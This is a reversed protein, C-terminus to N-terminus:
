LICRNMRCCRIVFFDGHGQGQDQVQGDGQEYAGEEVAHLRGVGREGLADERAQAQADHQAGRQLRDVAGTRGGDAGGTFPEIHQAAAVDLQQLHDDNRQDHDRDDAGDEFQAIGGREALDARQRDADQDGGGGHGGHDADQHGLQEAQRRDTQRGRGRFHRASDVALSIERGDISSEKM